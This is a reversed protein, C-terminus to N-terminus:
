ETSIPHGECSSFEDVVTDDIDILVPYLDVVVLVISKDDNGVVLKSLPEVGNLILMMDDDEPLGEKGNFLVAGAEEAYSVWGKGIALEEM